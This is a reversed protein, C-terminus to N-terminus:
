IETAVFYTNWSAMLTGNTTGKDTLRVTIVEDAAPTYFHLLGAKFGYATTSTSMNTYANDGFAVGAGNYFQYGIYGSGDLNQVNCQAELRYTKGAKLQIGNGSQILGNSSRVTIFPFQSGVSLTTMAPSANLATHIYNTAVMKARTISADAIKATTVNSDLIKTTTVAGDAIKASTVASAAIKVTTIAGDVVSGAWRKVEEITLQLSKIMQVIDQPSKEDSLM